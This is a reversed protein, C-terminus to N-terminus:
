AINGILALVSSGTLVCVIMMLVQNIKNQNFNRVALRLLYSLAGGVVFTILFFFGAVEGKVSDTAFAEGLNALGAFVVQFGVTAAIVQSDINLFLLTFIISTSNGLGFVGGNFGGIFGGFSILLYSKMRDLQVEYDYRIRRYFNM